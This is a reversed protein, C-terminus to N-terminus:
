TRREHTCQNATHTEGSRFVHLLHGPTTRAARARAPAATAPAPKLKKSTKFVGKRRDFEAKEEASM